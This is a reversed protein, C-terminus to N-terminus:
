DARNIRERWADRQRNVWDVSDQMDIRDAWMGFSPLSAFDVDAPGTPSENPSRAVEISVVIPTGDPLPLTGDLVVGGDEVRGTRVVVM